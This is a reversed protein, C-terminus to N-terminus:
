IWLGHVLQNLDVIWASVSENQRKCGTSRQGRGGGEGGGEGGEGGGEGGEGGGEGWVGRVGGPKM